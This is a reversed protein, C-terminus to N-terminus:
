SKIPPAILFTLEYEGFDEDPLSALMDEVTPETTTESQSVVADTEVPEGEGCSVLILGILLVATMFRSIHQKM